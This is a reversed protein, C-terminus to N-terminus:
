TLYYLCAILLNFAVALLIASSTALVGNEVEVGVGLVAAAMIGLWVGSMPDGRSAAQGPTEDELADLNM